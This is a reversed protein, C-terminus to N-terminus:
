KINQLSRKTTIWKFAIPRRGRVSPWFHTHDSHSSFKGTHGCNALSVPVAPLATVSRECEGWWVQFSMAPSVSWELTHSAHNTQTVAWVTSRWKVLMEAAANKQKADTFLRLGEGEGRPWLHATGATRGANGRLQKASSDQTEDQHINVDDSLNKECGSRKKDKQKIKSNWWRANSLDKM